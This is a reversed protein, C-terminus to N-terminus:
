EVIIKSTKIINNTLIKVFYLGKKVDFAVKNSSPNQDFYVLKGCIDFIEIKSIQENNKTEISFMGSTPNPYVIFKLHYFVAEDTFHM